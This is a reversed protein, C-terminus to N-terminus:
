LKKILDDLLDPLKSVGKDELIWSCISLINIIVEKASVVHSPLSTDIPRTQLAEDLESCKTWPDADDGFYYFRGVFYDTIEYIKISNEQHDIDIMVGDIEFDKTNRGRHIDDVYVYQSGDEDGNFYLFKGRYKDSLEKVTMTDENSISAESLRVAIISCDEICTKIFYDANSYEIRSNNGVKKPGIVIERINKIASDKVEKKKAMLLTNFNFKLFEICNETDKRLESEPFTTNYEGSVYDEIENIAEEITKM